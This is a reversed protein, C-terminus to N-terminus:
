RYGQRELEATATEPVQVTWGRDALERGSVRQREVEQGGYSFVFTWTTGLDVAEHFATTARPAALGLGLRGGGGVAAVQLALAARNDVQVTRYAPRGGLAAQVLWIAGVAAVLVAVLALVLVPRDTGAGSPRLRVSM